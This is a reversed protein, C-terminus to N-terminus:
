TPDPRPRHGQDGPQQDLPPPQHGVGFGQALDAIQDRVSGGPHRSLAQIRKRVAGVDLARLVTKIQVIHGPSMSLAQFGCGVLAIAGLPTAALEGCVSVPKGLRAATTAITTLLRLNTPKLVEFRNDTRPNNRDAATLFQFLDNTGVSAFDALALLRELDWLLAPVEIMVGAELREPATGGRARHEALLDSLLRRAAEFEEVESIMPFMVRLPRGDAAMLLARLQDSLLDPHDLGIRIARWGLAPNPENRHSEFYPLTKDSGVDLTRFVVPKDAMREYIRRYLRAQEEVSPFRDRILFAMETRYLGIGDTELRGIEELDLLLGANAMVRMAVGDRSRCPGRSRARERNERSLRAAIHAQYRAVLSESPRAILQGNDADLIVVDADNLDTLAGAVQGLAPIGLSNAIIALHAAPSADVVVLGALKGRGIRLLEPTGLSRCVLISDTPLADPLGRTDEGTLKALLRHSLEDLDLLRERIYDNGVAKMRARIDERVRQIAAEASLGRGIAAEIKERWGKDRALMLDTELLEGMELDDIAEPLRLLAALTDELDQFAAKLRVLEASPDAAQWRRIVIEKLYLTVKGVALGPSLPVASLRLTHRPGADGGAPAGSAVQHLRESLFQAVTECNETEEGSYRRPEGHQIVLVGLLTEARILPIGLFSQYIEEGTEPRFVFREDAQACELALLRRSEAVTGVLGEGLRLATRGVAEPRLGKTARLFLTGRGADLQYLSCVESHFHGALLEVIAQLSQQMDQGGAKLISRLERFLDRFDAPEDRAEAGGESSM